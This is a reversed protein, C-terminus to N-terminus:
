HHISRDYPHCKILEGTELDIPLSIASNPHIASNALQESVHSVHMGYFPNNYDVDQTNNDIIPKMKKQLSAESCPGYFHEAIERLTEHAGTMVVTKHLTLDM